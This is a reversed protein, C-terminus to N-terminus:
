KYVAGRARRDDVLPAMCLPSVGHRLHNLAGHGGMNLSRLFFISVMSRDSPLAQGPQMLQRLGCSAKACASAREALRASCAGIVSKLITEFGIM